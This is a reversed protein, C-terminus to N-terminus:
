EFQEFLSALITNSFLFGDPDNLTLQNGRLKVWGSTLYPAIAGQIQAQQVASFQGLDVGAALRLGVMLTELLHDTENQPVVAIPCGQSVWPYYTARRRPRTFRQGQTYSAAGMGFGYYPQNHWYTLNHRCHSGPQAYNSIEYHEYGAATLMAQATRYMQATLTDTPLPTAGPEYRKGFATVPELVLDYCSLHSPALAIAQTLSAQWDALTQHPLGSILDLSWNTIGVAQLMEVAACSEAVTHSRGCAQLLGDQFAQVGLSFRNIGLDRFAQLKARDFTGPDIELSCEAEPALGCARDLTTLIQELQAPTLLSPTGGGFFVTQLPQTNAAALTTRIEQCLVQVYQGVSQANSGDRRDGLVSVPFDCYFCRRRCFPIHVYAATIASKAITAPSLSVDGFM